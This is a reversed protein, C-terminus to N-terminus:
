MSQWFDNWENDDNPEDWQTVQQIVREAKKEWLGPVSFISPLSVQETFVQGSDNVHRCGVPSQMIAQATLAVQQDFSYYHPTERVEYWQRNPDYNGTTFQRAMMHALDPGSQFCEIRNMAQILKRVAAEEFALGQTIITIDVGRKRLTNLWHLVDPILLDFNEVEDVMLHVNCPNQECWALFRIMAVLCATRTTERNVNGEFIFKM